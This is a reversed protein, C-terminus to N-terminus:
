YKQPLSISLTLWDVCTAFVFELSLLRRTPKKGSFWLSVTGSFEHFGVLLHTIFRLSLLLYFLNPVPYSTTAPEASM